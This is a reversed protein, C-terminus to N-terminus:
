VTTMDRWNEGVKLDVPFKTEGLEPVPTEMAEKLAATWYETEKEPSELMLEDHMNLILPAGLEHLAVTARNVLGAATAQMPFNYLETFLAPPPTFFYRKYGFPTTYSRKRGYGVDRVLRERWMQVPYHRSFWREEAEKIASRKLSLSAPVKDKCKVCPCYTKTKLTEARGGYSIGYLFAKAFNRTEKHQQPTLADWDEQSYGFLDRANSAHIDEGSAFANLSVHDESFLALIRAELQSYDAAIFVHGPRARFIHRAEKPWQQLPPNAYAMRLTEVKGMRITPYICDDADLDLKLYRTRITNYRSRHFLAHLAPVHPRDKLRLHQLIWFLAEHDTSRAGTPTRKGCKLGLEDYLWVGRQTPSRLNLKKNETHAMIITETEAIENDVEETYERLAERDTLFGRRQMGMVAPVLPWFVRKFHQLQRNERMEQIISHYVRATAICDWANYRAVLDGDMSLWKHNTNVTIPM